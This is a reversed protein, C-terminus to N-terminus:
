KQKIEILNGSFDKIFHVTKGTTKGIVHEVGARSAKELLEDLNDIYLGIHSFDPQLQQKCEPCIFVEVKIAEHEFVLIKIERSQGFLQESLEVPLDIDRTKRFGLFRGYFLEAHEENINTIGVHNLDM